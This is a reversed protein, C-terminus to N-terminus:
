AHVGGQDAILGKELLSNLLLHFYVLGAYGDWRKLAALVEDYNM